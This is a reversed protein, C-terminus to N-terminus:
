HEFKTQSRVNRELRSNVIHLIKLNEYQSIHQVTGQPVKNNSYKEFRALM